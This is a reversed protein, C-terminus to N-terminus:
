SVFKVPVTVTLNPATGQTNQIEIDSSPVTAGPTGTFGTSPDSAATLLVDGPNASITIVASSYAGAPVSANGILEGLQDLQVLNIVPATSPATYVTVNSGGNQPVLAISLVKVGITAWDETSADSMLVSLNASQPTSPPTSPQMSNLGSTGPGGGCAALLAAAVSVSLPRSSTSFMALVGTTLSLRGDEKLAPAREIHDLLARAALANVTLHVRSTAFPHLNNHRGLRVPAYEGSSRRLSRERPRMSCM